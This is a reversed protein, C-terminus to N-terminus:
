TERTQRKWGQTGGRRPTNSCTLLAIGSVCVCLVTASHPSHQARWMGRSGASSCMVPLTVSGVALTCRKENTSRDNMSTRGVPLKKIVQASPLFPWGLVAFSRCWRLLYLRFSPPLLLVQNAVPVDDEFEGRCTDWAHWSSVVVRFANRGRKAPHTTFSM